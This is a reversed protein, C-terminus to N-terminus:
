ILTNLKQVLNERLDKLIALESQLTVIDASEKIQCLRAALDHAQHHLSVVQKYNPHDGYQKQGSSLLWKGFRCERVDLTIKSAAHGLAALEVQRVWSRHEVAAFLLPLDERQVTKQKSWIPDPCWTQMWIILENAPMPQAIVFGQAKECGLQLLLSGHAISEVGEAIVERRFATALGLVGELIALDEPDDLMDRVFSQDIKMIGAPLLKLYTLSSYGTGFDDLAFVVGMERCTKIVESVQAMDELASSELVELELRKPDIRPHAKLHQQLIEAFNSKQLFRAGINVSVSLDLGDSKWQEMQHLVNDLVWQDLSVAIDEDEILPLFERPQLLGRKPHQWRILAEAGILDGTRMNVKPQYHILFQNQALGESIRTVTEHHGRLGRYKETEFFKYRNKGTVKASYMAQDAQRLLQDADVDEKQPYFTVGISASVRLTLEGLHVSQATSSLMRELLPISDKSDQLDVLVAVFEDGGLRAITDGERLIDKLRHALAVLFLDGTDHGYSDNIEKFGDLDLYAVAIMDSRRNVQAMTQNLRDALLTRNPLGTLNDHNAVHELRTKKEQLEQQTEIHVTIDRSAQVMGTIQHQDDFLPTGVVEFLRATGDATKHRHIVTVQEQTQLVINLPCAHSDGECPSERDHNITYCKYQTLNDTFLSTEKAAKNMQKINYNLDVVIIPDAVGDIITQLFHHEALFRQEAMVRETIDSAIEMRVMRGDPWAIAQDRCELWEGSEEVYREWTHIANPYGGSDLLRGNTCFDCPGSANNQLRQWCIDGVGDGWRAKANQNMFLIEYSNMDAVYVAADLTNLVTTFRDHSERLQNESQLRIAIENELKTNTYTLQRTREEVVVELDRQHIDLQYQADERESVEMRLKEILGQKDLQLRLTQLLIRNTNVATYSLLAAYVMVAAFLIITDVGQWQTSLILLSVTSPITACFFATLIASLVPVTAAMIGLVIMVIVIKDTPNEAMHVFLAMGAWGIGSLLASSIILGTWLRVHSKGNSKTYFIYLLLRSFVLLLMYGTWLNLMGNPIAGGLAMQTLLTILLIAVSSPLLNAYILRIQEINVRVKLLDAKEKDNSISSSRLM